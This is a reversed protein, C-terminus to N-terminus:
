GVRLAQSVGHDLVSLMRHDQVAHGPGLSEPMAPDQVPMKFFSVANTKPDLIPMNDTSYEPSGSPTCSGEIGKSRM